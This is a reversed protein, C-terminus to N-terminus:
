ACGLSQKSGRRFSKKLMTLRSMRFGIHGSMQRRFSELSDLQCGSIVVVYELILVTGKRSLIEM